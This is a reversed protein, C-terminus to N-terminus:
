MGKKKLEKGQIIVKNININDDFFVLDAVYGKELKGRDELEMVKAPTECMMKICQCLPIGVLKYMTRILRDATAISGAFASMDKLYAVGDHINCEMGDHKPGLVSPGDPMGAGRMSDTVLCIRDPGKIKYILKLLEPPLHIGDAITEVYVDDELYATEVAGLKRMLNRRTINSMGSYLHTALNCGLPILPAIEEYIADTHGFSAIINNEKLYICLDKSGDLEPAFSIRKLTGNGEKVFKEYESRVPSKLYSTNQAGCMAKSFYPGELHSGAIYCIGPANSEMAKKVNSIFKITDEFSSSTCTPYIATTGHLAHMYSASLIDSVEGDAFDYGGAGHTHIDIFGPSVYLGSADIEEDYILENATVEEIKGNEIYIYKNTILEDSVIVANKIRLM